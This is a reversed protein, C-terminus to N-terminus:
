VELEAITTQDYLQWISRAKYKHFQAPKLERFEVLVQLAQIKRQMSSLFESPLDEISVLIISQQDPFFAPRNRKKTLRAPVSPQSATFADPESFDM